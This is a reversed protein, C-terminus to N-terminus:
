GHAPPRPFRSFKHGLADVVAPPLVVEGFLKELVDLRGIEAFNIVPTTNCFVLPAIEM